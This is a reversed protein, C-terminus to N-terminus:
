AGERTATGTQPSQPLNYIAMPFHEILYNVIRRVSVIGIVQDNDDVVPMHRFGGSNMRRIVDRVGDTPRVADANPTMVEAVSDDQSRGPRM